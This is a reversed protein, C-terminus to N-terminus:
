LKQFIMARNTPLLRWLVVAKENFTPRLYLKRFVMAAHTPLLRALGSIWNCGAVHWHVPM